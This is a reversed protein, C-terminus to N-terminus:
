NHKSREKGPLVAPAEFLVFVAKDNARLRQGTARLKEYFFGQCFWWKASVKM